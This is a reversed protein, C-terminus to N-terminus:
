FLIELMNDTGHPIFRNREPIESRQLVVCEPIQSASLESRWVGRIQWRGKGYLYHRLNAWDMVIKGWPFLPSFLLLLGWAPEFMPFVGLAQYSIKFILSSTFDWSKRVRSYLNRLIWKQWYVLYARTKTLTRIAKIFCWLWLWNPRYLHKGSECWVRDGDFSTLASFSSVFSTNPISAPSMSSNILPKNEM